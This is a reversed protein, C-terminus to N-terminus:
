SGENLRLMMMVLIVIFSKLDISQSLLSMNRWEEEEALQDLRLSTWEGVTIIDLGLLVAELFQNKCVRYAILGM